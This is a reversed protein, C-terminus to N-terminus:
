PKEGYPAIHIGFERGDKGWMPVYHCKNCRQFKNYGNSDVMYTGSECCSCAKGVRADVIHERLAVLEKHMQEDTLPERAPGSPAATLMAQVQAATFLAEQPNLDCKSYALFSGAAGHELYGVPELAAPVARLELAVADAQEAHARMSEASPAKGAAAHWRLWAAVERLQCHLDQKEHPHSRCCLRPDNALSPAGGEVTPVAVPQSAPAPPLADVFAKLLARADTASVGQLHSRLGTSRAIQLLDPADTPALTNTDPM